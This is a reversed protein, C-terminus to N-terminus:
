ISETTNHVNFCAYKHTGVITMDPQSELCEDSMLPCRSSFRCGIPLDLPSFPLGELTIQRKKERPNASLTCSILAKTYPHKAEAFVNNISGSEFVKGLYMVSVTDCYNAIMELDHSILLYTLNLKAQLEKLLALVNAQVSHDLSSTPEDLVLFTPNTALARAINVRQLQGGSLENTYRGAFTSPLQVMELLRAVEYKVEKRSITSHLKLPESLITNIRHKPNLSEFSDQFVVQNKSRWFRLSDGRLKRIDQGEVQISGSDFNSLRLVCRGLTSKGSGSEGVVGHIEGKKINISVDDIAVLKRGEAAFTKTLNLIQVFNDM